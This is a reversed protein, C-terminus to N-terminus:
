NDGAFIIVFRLAIFGMFFMVLVFLLFCLATWWCLLPLIKDAFLVVLGGYIGAFFGVFYDKILDKKDLIIVEFNKNSM